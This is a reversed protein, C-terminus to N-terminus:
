LKFKWWNAAHLAGKQIGTKYVFGQAVGTKDATPMADTMYLEIEFASPIFLPYALTKPPNLYNDYNLLGYNMAKLKKILGKFANSNTIFPPLARFVRRATDILSRKTGPVLLEDGDVKQLQNLQALPLIRTPTPNDGALQAHINFFAQWTVPEPNIGYILQPLKNNKDAAFLMLDALDDVYIAHCVSNQAEPLVHTYTMIRSFPMKSWHMYPGYVIGPRIVTIDLKDKYTLAIKETRIKVNTYWDAETSYNYDNTLVDATVRPPLVAISSLDVLKGIGLEIITEVLNTFFAANKELLEDENETSSKDIACNIVADVGTLADQLQTKNAIDAKRIDANGWRAMRPDTSRVILRVDLGKVIAIQALRAGIEGSAGLIAIKM